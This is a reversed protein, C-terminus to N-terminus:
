AVAVPLSLRCTFLPVTVNPVIANEGADLSGYPVAVAIVILSV